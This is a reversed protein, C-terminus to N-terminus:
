DLSKQALEIANLVLPYIKQQDECYLMWDSADPEGRTACGDTKPLIDYKLNELADKYLGEDIMEIAADIKNILANSSDDIKALRAGTEKNFEALNFYKKKPKIFEISEVIRAPKAPNRQVLTADYYYNNHLVGDSRLNTFYLYSTQMNSFMWELADDPINAAIAAEFPVWALGSLYTEVWAHKPCMAYDVKYGAVVRAPINKARCLAVFLDCYDICMGTKDRATRAAGVGKIKSIDPSLNRICYKYINEVIEIDTQGQITKAIAQVSPDNKEIMREHRLFRKRDAESLPKKTPEARVAALDCKFVRGKILIGIRTTEQSAVVMYQAYKNGAESFVRTPQPNFELQTIEQKGEITVPLSVTLVTVTHANKGPSSDQMNPDPDSLIDYSINLEIETSPRSKSAASALESSGVAVILVAGLLSGRINLSKM